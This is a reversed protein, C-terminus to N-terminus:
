FGGAPVGPYFNNKQIYRSQFLQRVLYLNGCIAIDYSGFLFSKECYVEM